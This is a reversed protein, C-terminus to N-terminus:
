AVVQKLQMVCHFIRKQDERDFDKFRIGLGPPKNDGPKQSWVVRGYGRIPSTQDPLSFELKLVSGIPLLNETRVFIGGKSINVMPSSFFIDRSSYNVAINLPARPSVRFPKLQEAKQNVAAPPTIKVADFPQDIAIPELTMPASEETKFDETIEGPDEADYFNQQFFKELRLDKAREPLAPKDLNAQVKDRLFEATFPKLLFDDARFYNDEISLENWERITASMLLIPIHKFRRDSKILLCCETGLIHPLIVEFIALDPPHHRFRALAVEGNEATVVSFNMAQFMCALDALTQPDRDAILVRRNPTNMPKSAVGQTSFSARKTLKNNM